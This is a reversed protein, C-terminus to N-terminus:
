GASLCARFSAATRTGSTAHEMSTATATRLRRTRPNRRRLSWMCGYLRITWSSTTGVPLFCHTHNRGYFHERNPCTLKGARDGETPIGAIGQRSSYDIWWADLWPQDSFGLQRLVQHHDLKGLRMADAMHEFIERSPQVVMVGTNFSLYFQRQGNVNLMHGTHPFIGCAFEEIEFLEDVNAVVLTDADLFVVREYETLNWV